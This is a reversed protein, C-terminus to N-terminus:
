VAEVKVTYLNSVNNAHKTCYALTQEEEDRYKQTVIVAARKTCQTITSLGGLGFTGFKVHCFVRSKGFNKSQKKNM